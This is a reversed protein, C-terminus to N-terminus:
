PGLKPGDSTGIGIGVTLGFSNLTGVSPGDCLWVRLGSNDKLGENVLPGGLKSFVSSGLLTVDMGVVTGVSYGVVLGVDAGDSVSVSTGLAVVVLNTWDGAGEEVVEELLGDDVVLEGNVGVVTGLELENFVECGM